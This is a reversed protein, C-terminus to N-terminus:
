RILIRSAILKVQVKVQVMIASKRSIDFFRYRWSSFTVVRCGGELSFPPHFCNLITEHSTNAFLFEKNGRLITRSIENKIIDRAIYLIYINMYRYTCTLIFSNRYQWTYVSGTSHPIMGSDRKDFFQLLDVIEIKGESHIIKKNRQSFETM